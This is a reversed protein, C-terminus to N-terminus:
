HTNAERLKSSKYKEKEFAELRVIEVDLKRKKLEKELNNTFSDQDYGLCIVDPKIEEIINYKNTRKGLVAEDVFKLESINRLRVAENNVPFEGKVQKVTLDRAVVVALYDGFLKAQKLFYLHGPHLIDFTGFVLVKRM